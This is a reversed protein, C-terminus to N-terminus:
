ARRQRKEIVSWGIGVMTLVAGVLQQLEDASLLGSTVFSGGLTTLAHRLVGLLAARM